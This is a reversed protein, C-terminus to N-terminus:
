RDGNRLPLRAAMLAYEQDQTVFRFGTVLDVFGLHRYLTRARSDIDYTSLVATPYPVGALLRTLLARGIGRGQWAPLVHLETVAYANELWREHGARVLAPRIQDHWWQGPLCATGYTFGLLREDRDLAAFARFDRYTAHRVFISARDPGVPGLAAAQVAVAEDVRRVLDFPAITVAARPDARAADHLAADEPAADDEARQVPDAV